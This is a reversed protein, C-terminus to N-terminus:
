FDKIEDRLPHPRQKKKRNHVGLNSNMRDDLDDYQNWKLIGGYKKKLRADIEEAKEKNSRNDIEEPKAKKLADHYFDKSLESFAETDNIDCERLLLDLNPLKINKKTCKEQVELFQRLFDFLRVEKKDLTKEGVEMKTYESFMADISKYKSKFHSEQMEYELQFFFGATLLKKGFFTNKFGLDIKNAALMCRRSMEQGREDTRRVITM